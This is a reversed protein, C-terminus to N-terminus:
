VFLQRRALDAFRLRAIRASVLAFAALGVWVIAWRWVPADPLRSLGIFTEDFRGVPLAVLGAAFFLPWAEGTAAVFMLGCLLLAMGAFLGVAYVAVALQPVDRYWCPYLTPRCLAFTVWFLLYPIVCFSAVLGFFRVFADGYEASPIPSMLVEAARGSKHLNQTFLAAPALLYAFFILFWISFSFTQRHLLVASVVSLACMFGLTTDRLGHFHSRSTRVLGRYILNEGCPCWARALGATIPSPFPMRSM